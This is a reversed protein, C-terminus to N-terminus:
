NKEVVDIVEGLYMRHVGEKSYSRQRVEETMLAADLDQCYIKKCVVTKEAEAFTIGHELVRPTLGTKALKDEDRGSHSGLYALDKRFSEPFFSVTFYAERNLFEYTYREPRVYITATPRGWITGMAGWSVTMTNFDEPTGATVLAWGNQFCDFIDCQLSIM